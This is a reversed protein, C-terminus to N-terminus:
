MFMTYHKTLLVAQTKRTPKPSLFCAFRPFIFTFLINLVFIQQLRNGKEQGNESGRAGIQRRTVSLARSLTGVFNSTLLTCEGGEQTFITRETSPEGLGVSTYAAVHVAYETYVTLNVLAARTSSTNVTLHSTNSPLSAKRYFVTYGLIAGNRMHPLPEAILVTINHQSVPILTINSPPGPM